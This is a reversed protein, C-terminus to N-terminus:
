ATDGINRGSADATVGARARDATAMGPRLGKIVLWFGTGLEFIGLGSDFWWLNVVKAFDPSIILALTFVAAWASVIVGFAALGRPIYGSKFFLYSCATSALGYFLLGVYYADFGSLYLRGLTQGQETGLVRLYDAGNLLRLATLQNLSMLVWMSAYVLRWFAALLALTRGVPRLTVYLASLLVLLGAEYILNSAIGIRFIREHALINRTTQAPDGVMLRENIGFNVAVVIAFTLLYFFGAVRAAERQVKDITSTTM